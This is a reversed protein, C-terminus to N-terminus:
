LVPISKPGTSKKKHTFSGLPMNYCEGKNTSLLRFLKADVSKAIPDGYSSVIESTGTMATSNLAGKTPPEVKRMITLIKRSGPVM